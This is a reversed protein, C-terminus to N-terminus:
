FGSVSGGGGFGGGGSGGFGGGSSSSSSSSYSGSYSSSSSSSSYSYSSIDSKVRHLIQELKDIIDKLLESAEIIDTAVLLKYKYIKSKIDEFDLKRSHLVGTKTIKIGIDSVLSDIERGKSKIYSESSNYQKLLNSVSGFSGNLVSITTVFNGYHFMALDFNNMKLYNVSDLSNSSIKNIYSEFDVNVLSNYRNGIKVKSLFEKNKIYDQYSNRLEEIKKDIKERDSIINNMKVTKNLFSKLKNDLSKQVGVLSNLRKKTYEGNTLTNIQTEPLLSNLENKLYDACFSYNDKLYREIDSKSRNISKIAHNTTNITQKYDLLQNYIIQAQSRTDENIKTYKINHYLTNLSAPLEGLQTKLNENKKIITEIERKLKLYKLFSLYQLYILFGIGISAILGLIIYLINFLINKKLIDSRKKQIEKNKLYFEYGENGMKNQCTLILEKIGVYFDGKSLTRPFIDSQMHKITADPLLGELGYGTRVTCKRKAKSLIIMLGNDLGKKGVGWRNAIEASYSDDFDATTALCIEISTKKEYDSLIKELDTKEETTFVNEYDNVYGTPKLNMLDQSKVTFFTLLFVIMLILKKM